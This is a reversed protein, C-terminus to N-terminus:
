YITAGAHKHHFSVQRHPKLKVYAWDGIDFQVDWLKKDTTEKMHKQPYTYKKRWSLKFRTVEFYTNNLWIMLTAVM